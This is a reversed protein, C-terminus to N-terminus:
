EGVQKRGNAAMEELRTIEYKILDTGSTTRAYLKRKKKEGTEGKSEILKNTLLTNIAGYLTGAALRIRGNSMDEVKKIIGYGHLPETLTVLIYYTAETLPSFRRIKGTMFINFM